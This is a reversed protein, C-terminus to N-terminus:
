PVQAVWPNEAARRRGHPRLPVHRVGDGADVATERDAEDVEQWTAGAAQLTLM